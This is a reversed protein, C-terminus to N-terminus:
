VYEFWAENIIAPRLIAIERLDDPLIGKTRVAGLM